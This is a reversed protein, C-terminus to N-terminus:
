RRRSRKRGSRSEPTQVTSQNSESSGTCSEFLSFTTFDVQHRLVGTLVFESSVVKGGCKVANGCARKDEPTAIIVTNKVSQRNRFNPMKTLVTAGGSSLIQGMQQSNPAVNETVFVELNHFLPSDAERAIKLTEELNFNYKTQLSEGGPTQEDDNLLFDDESLFRSFFSLDPLRLFKLQFRYVCLIRDSLQLVAILWRM